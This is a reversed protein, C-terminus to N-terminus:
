RCGSLRGPPAPKNCYGVSLWFSEQLNAIANGVDLDPRIISAAMIGDLHLSAFEAVRDADLAQFVGAAIGNRISTSLISMEERYFRAIMADVSDLSIESNSYDLMIKVLSRISSAMEINNQFWDNILDVPDSHKEKLREYNELALLIAHEISSKFLDEKNDFYYYLLGSTINASKAIDKITVSAFGRKAFLGLAITMLKRAQLHDRRDKSTPAEAPDKESRRPM